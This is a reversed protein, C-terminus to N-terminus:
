GWDLGRDAPVIRRLTYVDTGRLDEEHSPLEEWPDWPASILKGTIGDSEASALFVALRSAVALPTGGSSRQELAREYFSAGVREPGAELVEDLLRTNLAGPAIANVDIGTGRLEEALTEAFRVVAAKSAAYASLRPLPSTAGGGSLQVIKGYGNARFHPLIARCCLVSGFLNVRIAHEWEDWAVDEARGKPGYVGANSVLVDIRTFRELADAVLREVSEPESVDVPATAVLGPGAAVSELERRARDLAATDRACVVVRAGAELYTRAIELGLGHSGGTVIAARGSLVGSM